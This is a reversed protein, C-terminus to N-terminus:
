PLIGVFQWPGHGDKRADGECYAVAITKYGSSSLTKESTEIFNKFKYSDYGMVQWQCEQDDMGNSGTSTDIIKSTMGKAVTFSPRGINHKHDIYAVVRKASSTFGTISRQIYADDENDNNGQSRLEDKDDDYANFIAADIPSDHKRNTNSSLKAFRLVDHSTFDGFPIIRERVITMQATTLTGTKDSCLVSMSAIDQLAPLHKVIAGHTKALYSAGLALSVQLVLPLAIPLSATVIGIATLVTAEIDEKSDFDHYAIVIVTTFTISYMMFIKVFYMIEDEFVSRSRQRGGFVTSTAQTEKSVTALTQGLETQTGTRLVVGACEGSVITTGALLVAGYQTSPYKRPQVEGTISRAINM